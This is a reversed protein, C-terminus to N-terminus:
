SDGLYLLAAALGAGDYFSVEVGAVHSRIMYDLIAMEPVGVEKRLAVLASGARSYNEDTIPLGYLAMARDIRAEIEVRTYGGVFAIEMLDLAPFSDIAEPRTISKDSGDYIRVTVDPNLTSPPEVSPAGGCSVVLLCMALVTLKFGFPGM